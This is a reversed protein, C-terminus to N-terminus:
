TASSTTQRARLALTVLVTTAVTGIVIAGSTPMGLWAFSEKAVDTGGLGPAAFGAVMWFVPYGLAGFGLLVATGRTVVTPRCALALLMVLVLSAAGLGGAHLHARKQYTWAKDVVSKAKAADGKYVEALVAQADDNLTKKIDDEAVGFAIGIGFGYVLTLMGLLLALWHPRLRDTVELSPAHTTNSM